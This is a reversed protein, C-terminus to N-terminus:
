RIEAEALLKREEGSLSTFCRYIDGLDIERSRNELPKARYAREAASIRQHPAIGLGRAVPNDALVAFVDRPTATKRWLLTDFCDLSLVKISDGFEHLINPIDRATIQAKHHTDSTDGWLLSDEPKQRQTTKETLGVGDPVMTSPHGTFRYLDDRPLRPLIEGFLDHDLPNELRFKDSSQQDGDAQRLKVTLRELIHQM